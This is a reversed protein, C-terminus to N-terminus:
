MIVACEESNNPSNSSSVCPFNKARSRNKWLPSSHLRLVKLPIVSHFGPCTCPTLPLHFLSFALIQSSAPSGGPGPQGQSLFPPQASLLSLCSPILRGFPTLSPPQLSLRLCPHLQCQAHVNRHIQMLVPSLKNGRSCPPCVMPTCTDRPPKQGAVRRWSRWM